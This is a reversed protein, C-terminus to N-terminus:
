ALPANITLKKTVSHHSNGRFVTLTVTFEGYNVYTHEPNWIGSKESNDGFDWQVRDIIGASENKFKILTNTDASSPNYSFRATPIPSGEPNMIDWESYTMVGDSKRLKVPRLPANHGFPAAKIGLSFVRIKEPLPEPNPSLQKYSLANTLVPLFAQFVKQAPESAKFADEVSDIEEQDTGNHFQQNLQRPLQKANSYGPSSKRILRKLYRQLEDKKIPADPAPSSNNGNSQSTTFETTFCVNTYHNSHIPVIEKARCLSYENNEGKEIIILFLDNEKLDISTGKFYIYQYGNKHPTEISEKTQPRTMRPRLDNWQSRAKLEESTEFTQPSEGPGPISQVKAGKPIVVEEEQHEDLTYALYVSSAVGPRPKYGVLRSLELLSRRETATRLYGENAIREQYFTLVDAVTAWADLLAISFDNEDRATLEGLKKFREESSSLRALMTELFSAHTGIRYALASLGPHNATPLPTLREVGECCGCANPGTTPPCCCDKNM